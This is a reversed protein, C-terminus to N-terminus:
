TLQKYGSFGPQNPAFNFGSFGPANAALSLGSRPGANIRRLTEAYTLGSGYGSYQWNFMDDISPSSARITNLTQAVAIPLLGPINIKGRYALFAILGPVLARSKPLDLKLMSALYKIGSEGLWMVLTALAASSVSNIGTTRFSSRKARRGMPFASTMMGSRRRARRHKRRRKPAASYVGHRRTLSITRHKRRAM